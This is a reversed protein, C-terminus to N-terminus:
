ENNEGFKEALEDEMSFAEIEWPREHYELDGVLTKRHWKHTKFTIQRLENKAYQKVHVLEHCLTKIFTERDLSSDIRVTYERDDEDMCDGLVGEKESLKSILQIELMVGQTRPFIQSKVFEAVQYALKRKRSGSGSVHLNDFHVM